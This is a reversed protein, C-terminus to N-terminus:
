PTKCRAKQTNLLYKLGKRPVSLTWHHHFCLGQWRPVENQCLSLIIFSCHTRHHHIRHLVHFCLSLPFPFMSAHTLPCTHSCTHGQPFLPAIWTPPDRQVFLFGQPTRPCRLLHPHLSPPGRLATTLRWSGNQMSHVTVLPKKTYTHWSRVLGGECFLRTREENWSHALIQTSYIKLLPIAQNSPVHM